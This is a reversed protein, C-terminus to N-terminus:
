IDIGSSILWAESHYFKNKKQNLNLDEFVKGTSVSIMEWRVIDNLMFLWFLQSKM